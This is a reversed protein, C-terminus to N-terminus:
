DQEKPQKPLSFHKKINTFFWQARENLDEGEMSAGKMLVKVLRKGRGVTDGVGYRTFIIIENDNSIDGSSLAPRVYQLIGEADIIYLGQRIEKQLVFDSEAQNNLILYSFKDKLVGMSPLARLDNVEYKYNGLELVHLLNFPIKKKAFQMDSLVHTYGTMRANIEIAYVDSEPTILLDIGFIGRYGHSSLESGVVAAIEQVRNKIIEPYVGGLEGGCWRTAGPLDLNCLYKSDVLQKQIGGTFIGDGTICVQVSYPSGDIYESVVITGSHSSKQLTELARDYDAQSSVVFTGKSGSSEADQLVYKDFRSILEQHTDKKLDNLWYVEYRPINIRESFEDRFYRKHEYAHAITPSNMIIRLPNMTYPASVPKQVIFKRKPMGSVFKAFDPGAVIQEGHGWADMPKLTYAENKFGYEEIWPDDFAGITIFDDFYRNLYIYILRDDNVGGLQIQRNYKISDELWSDM